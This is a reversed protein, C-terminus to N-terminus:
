VDAVALSSADQWDGPPTGFLPRHPLDLDYHHM